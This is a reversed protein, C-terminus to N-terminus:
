FYIVFLYIYLTKKFHSPINTILLFRLTHSWEHTRWHLSTEGRKTLSPDNWKVMLESGRSYCVRQEPASVCSLLTVCVDELCLYQYSLERKLSEPFCKFPM